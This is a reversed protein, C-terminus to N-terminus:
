QKKEKIYVNGFARYADKIFRAVKMDKRYEDVEYNEDFFLISPKDISVHTNNKIAKLEKDKSKDKEDYGIFQWNLQPYLKSEKFTTILVDFNDLDNKLKIYEELEDKVKLKADDRLKNAEYDELADVEIKKEVSSLIKNRSIDKEAALQDIIKNRDTILKSKKAMTLHYKVAMQSPTNILKVIKHISYVSGRKTETAYESITNHIDMFREYYSKDLIYLEGGGFTIAELPKLLEKVAIQANELAIVQESKKRAM